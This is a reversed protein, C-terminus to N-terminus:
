PLNQNTPAAAAIRRGGPVTLLGLVVLYDRVVWVLALTLVLALLPRPVPELHFLYPLYTFASAFQILVAVGWRKPHYFAYVLSLLDASFFYREHMAPLCYPMILASLLASHVLFAAPAGRVAAPRREWWWMGLVLYGGAAAALAWGVPEMLDSWGGPVWQYFNTAGLTLGPISRQRTNNFLALMVPRGLLLAPVGTLLYVAPAVPAWKWPVRGTILLGAVFPALFVGQPKLACALGFAAVVGLPREALAGAVVGLLAASYLVDCQGWLAGNMVVTPLGLALAAAFLAIWPERWRALVLRYILGAAVYDGAISLVKIAVLKPLPLYTAFTLGYLYLISYDSFDYRLARWGGHTQIFDYWPSLFGVFDGSRFDLCLWRCALSAAIVWGLGAYFALSKM